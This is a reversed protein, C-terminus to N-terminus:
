KRPPGQLVWDRMREVPKNDGFREPVLLELWWTAGAEAYASAAEAALGSIEPPTGGIAIVDFSGDIGQQARQDHVFAVAAQFQVYIAEPTSDDRWPMLPFAGDWRAARRMPAKNPWFGGVWIPIRPQQVPQPLFHAERIHYYKGEFSFPEGRWLGTLVDLAEDLMVGRVKQDPEEGLYAWEHEGLGIGVGLVLRGGSLHDLSVTERALKWPRRRPLPTVTTGLRIRSTTAAAATLTIWPDVVPVPRDQTMHDWIFFGDWGATEADHALDAIVRANGYVGFNPLYVAYQM